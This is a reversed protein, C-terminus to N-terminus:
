RRGGRRGTTDLSTVTLARTLVHAAILNPVLLVVVLLTPSGPHTIVVWQVGLMIGAMLVVRGALSVVRAGARATEATKRAKRSGARWVLLITLLVGFGALLQVPTINVTM